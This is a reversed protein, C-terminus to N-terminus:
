HELIGIHRGHLRTRTPVGAALITRIAVLVSASCHGAQVVDSARRRMDCLIGRVLHIEAQGGGTRLLAPPVRYAKVIAQNPVSQRPDQHHKPRGPELMMELYFVRRGSDAFEIALHQSRQIRFDWDVVSFVFIDPKSTADPVVFEGSSREHLEVSGSSPVHYNAIRYLRSKLGAYGENRAVTITRQVIDKARWPTRLIGFLFRMIRILQTTRTRAYRMPGTIRWSTSTRLELLQRDLRNARDHSEILEVSFENIKKEREKSEVSLENIKKERETLEVSFENIKKEREILEMTQVAIHNEHEALATATNAIEERASKLETTLRESHRELRESHRELHEKRRELDETRRELDEKRRGLDGTRREEIALKDRLSDRETTNKVGVAVARGFAPTAVNFAARIGDLTDQDAKLPASYTWRNFIDFSDRIWTSLRPNVFFSDDDTRHHRLAPSLFDDIEIDTDTSRRPWVVGLGDSM